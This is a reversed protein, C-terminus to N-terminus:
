RLHGSSFSDTLFHCAFADISYAEELLRMKSEHQEVESAEKSKEMALEHGTLYAHKAFPLFHDHNNEALKMMRGFIIPVGLIWKGGTITDWKKVLSNGLKEYVDKAVIRVNGDDDSIAVKGEQSELAVEIAKREKTMIKLIQDLEKKIDKFNANALTDYAAIFRRRRGTAKEADHMESPDIIPHKPVGYFDGALAIIQGFTLKLGNPLRLLKEAGLIELEPTGASQNAVPFRLTVKNGINEHEASEFEEGENDGSAVSDPMRKIINTLQEFFSVGNVIEETEMSEEKLEFFLGSSCRGLINM